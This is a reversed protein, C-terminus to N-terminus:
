GRWQARSNRFRLTLQPAITASWRERHAEKLRGAAARLMATEEVEGCKWGLRSMELCVEMAALPVRENGEAFPRSKLLVCSYGV